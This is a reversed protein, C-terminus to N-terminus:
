GAAPFYLCFESGFGPRSNVAVTGHHSRVVGYVVALGLGRGLFKTSFFPEFIRSRHEPEIGKGTDRVEICVYKGPRLSNGNPLQELEEKSLEIPRTRLVIVGRRQGIAEIANVLIALLAEHIQAADAEVCPPNPYLDLDLRIHKPVTARILGERNRIHRSFELNETTGLVSMGAFALLKRTLEAAQQSGQLATDLLQVPGPGEFKERLLSISGIIGTLLNNLTHAFGGALTAVTAFKRSEMRRELEAMRCTIDRWVLVCGAIHAEPAEIPAANCLINIRIGDGRELLWEECVIVEGSTARAIPLEHPQPVSGNLRLIHWAEGYELIRTGLLDCRCRRSLEASHRSVFEVRGTSVNAIEMGEPAHEMLAHLTAASRDAQEQGRKKETVDRFWVAIGTASPNIQFEYWTDLRQDYNEFRVPFREQTVRRFQRELETGTHGSYEDWIRKGVLDDSRRQLLESAKRNLYAFRFEQDLLAFADQAVEVQWALNDLYEAFTRCVQESAIWSEM